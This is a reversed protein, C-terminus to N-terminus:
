HISDSLHFGRYPWKARSPAMEAPTKRRFGVVLTDIRAEIAPHARVGAATSGFVLLRRGSGGYVIPRSGFEDVALLASRAEDDFLCLSYRGSLTEACSPGHLRYAEILAAAAGRNASLASLHPTSWQFSGEIAAWIGGHCRLDAGGNGGLAALAASETARRHDCDPQLVSRPIMGDLTDSWSPGGSVEGYWGCLGLV